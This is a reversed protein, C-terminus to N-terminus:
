RDSRYLGTAGVTAPPLPEARQGREASHDRVKVRPEVSEGAWLRGRALAEACLCDIMTNAPVIIHQSRLSGILQEALASAENTQLALDTLWGRLRRYEAITFPRYGFMEQLELAHERRTELSHSQLSFRRGFQQCM